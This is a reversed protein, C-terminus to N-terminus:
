CKTKEPRGLGKGSNELRWFETIIVEKGEEGM